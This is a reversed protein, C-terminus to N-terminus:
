TTTTCRNPLGAYVFSTPPEFGGNNCFSKEKRKKKRERAKSQQRMGRADNLYPGHGRKEDGKGERQNGRWEGGRERERKNEIKCKEAAAQEATKQWPRLYPLAESRAAPQGQPTGHPRPARTSTLRTHHTPPANGIAAPPMPGRAKVADHAKAGTDKALAEPPALPKLDLQQNGKTLAM